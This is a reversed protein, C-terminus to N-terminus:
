RGSDQELWGHGRFIPDSRKAGPEWPFNAPMFFHPQLSSALSLHALFLNVWSLKRCHHGSQAEQFCLLSQKMGTIHLRDM